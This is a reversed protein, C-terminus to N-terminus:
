ETENMIDKVIINFLSCNFIEYFAAVNKGVNAVKVFRMGCVFIVFPRDRYYRQLNEESTKVEHIEHKSYYIKGSKFDSTVYYINGIFQKTSRYILYGNIM